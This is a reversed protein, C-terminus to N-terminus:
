GGVHKCAESCPDRPASGVSESGDYCVPFYVRTKTWLTFFCGEQIGYGSDFKADLWADGARSKAEEIDESSWWDRYQPSSVSHVLHDFSDGHLLMEELILKRWSSSRSM